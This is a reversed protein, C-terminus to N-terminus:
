YEFFHGSSTPAATQFGDEEGAYEYWIVVGDHLGYAVFVPLLAVKKLVKLVISGTGAGVSKLKSLVGAEAPTQALLMTLALLPLLKKMEIIGM